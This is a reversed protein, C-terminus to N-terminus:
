HDDLTRYDFVLEPARVDGLARAKALNTRQASSVLLDPAMFVYCEIVHANAFQEGFSLWLPRHAEIDKQSLRQFGQMATAQVAVDLVGTPGDALL